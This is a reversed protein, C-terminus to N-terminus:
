QAKCAWIVDIVNVPWLLKVWAFVLQVDTEKPGMFAVCGRGGVLHPPVLYQNQQKLLLTHRLM